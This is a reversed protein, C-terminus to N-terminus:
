GEDGEVELPEGEGGLQRLLSLSGERVRETARAPRFVLEPPRLEGCVAAQVLGLPLRVEARKTGRDLSARASSVPREDHRGTTPEAIALLRRAQTAAPLRRERSARRGAPDPGLDPAGTFPLEGGPETGGTTSVDVGGTDDDTTGNTTGDTGETTGETTGDTGETTGETTGDTGETTGDHLRHHRRNHGWRLERERRRDGNRQQFAQWAASAQM